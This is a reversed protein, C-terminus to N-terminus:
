GTGFMELQSKQVGIGYHQGQKIQRKVRRMVLPGTHILKMHQVHSHTVDFM